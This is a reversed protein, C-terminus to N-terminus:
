DGANNRAAPSGLDDEFALDRGALLGGDEITIKEVGHL